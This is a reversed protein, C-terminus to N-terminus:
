GLNLWGHRKEEVFPVRELKMTKGKHRFLTVIDGFIRERSLNVLIVDAAHSPHSQGGDRLIIKGGTKRYGM